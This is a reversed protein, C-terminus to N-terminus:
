NGIVDFAKNFGDAFLVGFELVRDAAHFVCVDSNIGGTFLRCFVM